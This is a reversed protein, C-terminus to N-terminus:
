AFSLQQHGSFQLHPNSSAFMARGDNNSRMNSQSKGSGVNDFLSNFALSASNAEVRKQESIAAANEGHGKDQDSIGYAALTAKEQRSQDMANQDPKVQALEAGLPKNWVENLAGIMGKQMEAHFADTAGTAADASYAHHGGDLGSGGAGPATTMSDRAMANTAGVQVDAHGTPQQAAADNTKVHDNVNDAM